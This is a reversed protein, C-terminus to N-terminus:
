EGRKKRWVSYEFLKVMEAANKDWTYQRATRAANEGIRHRLEPNQHLLRILHALEKADRPDNLVFGDVGHTIIEAGGNNASTIVPLGCAMAELPPLAFSDHLSPGVYVDAAAYYYEVDPRPPLFRVSTEVGYQKLLSRFPSPDDRGVVLALVRSLPLDSLATILTELGKKKWDNGVLVLCFHSPSIGLESRARDRLRKRTEPTFRATDVSNHVVQVDNRGRRYHRIVERATLGSVAAITVDPRTYIRKELAMILRYYVRRHLLRPWSRIPNTGLRIDDRVWRFFEAFVIHVAIVDADLCNIGPSYVLDYQLGRM